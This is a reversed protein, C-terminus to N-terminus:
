LQKDLEQFKWGNHDTNKKIRVKILSRDVKFHDAATRLSKFEIQEGTSSHTALICVSKSPLPEITAPWSEDTKYRYAFGDVSYLSPSVLHRRIYRHDMGTFRSMERITATEMVRRDSIRIAQIPRTDYQDVVNVTHDPYDCSMRELIHRIGTGGMNWLKYRKIVDRTDHFEEMSGDPATVTTIYRGAKKVGQEHTWPSTDDLHKIEYRDQFMKNKRITSLAKAISGVAVGLAETAEALSRYEVVDGTQSDRVKCPTNDGRLGTEIAHLNNEQPTVWELNLYHPNRKDGDIHNVFRKTEPSPNHVWALAVLRHLVINRKRGKIPDYISVKTYEDKGRSRWELRPVFTQELTDYLDGGKSVLYRTYRPVVRMGKIPEIPRKFVMRGDIFFVNHYKSPTDFEVEYRSIGSLWVVSLEESNGFFEILVKGDQITPTCGMGDATLYRSKFEGDKSILFEHNGPIPKFM